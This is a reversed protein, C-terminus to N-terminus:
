ETDEEDTEGFINVPVSDDDEWGLEADDPEMDWQPPKQRIFPSM